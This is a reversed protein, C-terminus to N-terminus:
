SRCIHFLVSSHQVSQINRLGVVVLTVNANVGGEQNTMCFMLTLHLYWWPRKHRWCAFLTPLSERRQRRYFWPHCHRNYTTTRWGRSGPIARPFWAITAIFSSLGPYYVKANHIHLIHVIHVIHKNDLICLIYFLICFICLICTLFYSCYAFCYAFYAYYALWTLYINEGIHCYTCFQQELQSLTQGHHKIDPTRNGEPVYETSQLPPLHM